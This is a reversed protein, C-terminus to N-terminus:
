EGQNTTGSVEGGILERTQMVKENIMAAHNLLAEHHPDEGHPFQRSFERQDEKSFLNEQLKQVSKTQINM